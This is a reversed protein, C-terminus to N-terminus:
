SFYGCAMQNLDQGYIKIAINSRTGSLMHDIRHGIPQGITINAGTVGTLKERVDDMFESRSREGLKFPAEVESTNVGLAHEDM